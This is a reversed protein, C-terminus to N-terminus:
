TGLTTCPTPYLTCTTPHINYSTHHSNYPQSTRRITCLTRHMIADPTRRDATPTLARGTTSPTCLTSMKSASSAHWGSRCSCAFAFVSHLEQRTVILVFAPHLKKAPSLAHVTPAFASYAALQSPLPTLSFCGWHPQLDHSIHPRGDSTSDPSQHRNALGRTPKGGAEATSPILRDWRQHACTQRIKIDPSFSFIFFGQRRWQSNTYISIDSLCKQQGATQVM